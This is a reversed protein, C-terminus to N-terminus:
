YITTRRADDCDMEQTGWDVNDSARRALSKAEVAIHEVIVFRPMPKGKQYEWHGVGPASRCTSSAFLERPTQQMWPRLLSPSKGNPHLQELYIRMM